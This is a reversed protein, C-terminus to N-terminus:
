GFLSSRGSKGAMSLNYSTILFIKASLWAQLKTGSSNPCCSRLNSLNCYHKISLGSM